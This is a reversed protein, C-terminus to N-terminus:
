LKSIIRVYELSTLNGYLYTLMFRLFIISYDLVFYFSNHLYKSTRLKNKNILPRPIQSFHLNFHFYCAQELATLFQFFYSISNGYFFFFLIMYSQDGKERNQYM